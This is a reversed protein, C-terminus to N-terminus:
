VTSSFLLKAPTLTSLCKDLSTSKCYIGIKFLKLLYMFCCIYIALLTKQTSLGCKDPSLRWSSIRFSHHWQLQLTMLGPPHHMQTGRAKRPEM